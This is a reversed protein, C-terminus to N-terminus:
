LLLTWRLAMTAVVEPSCGEPDDIDGRLVRLVDVDVGSRRMEDDGLDNSPAGLASQAVAVEREGVAYVLVDVVFDPVPM